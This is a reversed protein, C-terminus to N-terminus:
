NLEEKTSLISNIYEKISEKSGTLIEDRKKDKAVFELSKSLISQQNDQPVVIVGDADGVVIDGPQIVIGEITIPVNVEGKNGIKGAAATTGKGYVPINWAKVDQIDRIVGNIVVAGVGMKKLVGLIFDGM